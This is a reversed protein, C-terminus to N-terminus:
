GVGNFFSRGAGNIGDDLCKRTNRWSKNRGRCNARVGMMNGKSKARVRFVVNNNWSECHEEGDNSVGGRIDTEVKERWTNSDLKTTFIISICRRGNAETEM